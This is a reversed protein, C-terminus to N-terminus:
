GDVGTGAGIPPLLAAELAADFAAESAADFAAEVSEELPFPDFDGFADFVFLGFSGLDSFDLDAELILLM